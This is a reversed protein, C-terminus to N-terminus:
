IYFEPQIPCISFKKQSIYKFKEQTAKLNKNKKEVTCIALKALDRLIRASMFSGIPAKDFRVSTQRQSM